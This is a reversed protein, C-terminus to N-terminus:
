FSILPVSFDGVFQPILCGVSRPSRGIRKKSIKDAIQKQHEEVKDHRKWEPMSLFQTKPIDFM